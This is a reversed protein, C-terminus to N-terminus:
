QDQIQRVIADKESDAYTGFSNILVGRVEPSSCSIAYVINQHTPDSDDEIRYTEDIKLCSLPLRQNAGATVDGHDVSLNATYGKDQLDSILQVVSKM